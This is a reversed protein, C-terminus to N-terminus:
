SQHRMSHDKGHRYSSLKVLNLRNIRDQKFYIRVQVLSSGLSTFQFSNFYFSTIKKGFSFTMKKVLLSFNSTFHSFFLFHLPHLISRESECNVKFILANISLISMYCSLLDFSFKYQLLSHNNNQVHQICVQFVPLQWFQMKKSSSCTSTSHTQPLLQQFM